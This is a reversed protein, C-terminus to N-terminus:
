AQDKASAIIANAAETFAPEAAKCARCDAATPPKNRSLTRCEACQDIMKTPGPVHDAKVSAIAARARRIDGVTFKNENIQFIPRNDPLSVHHEALLRAFPELAKALTDRQKEVALKELVVKQLQEVRLALREEASEAAIQYNQLQAQLAKIEAKFKRTSM